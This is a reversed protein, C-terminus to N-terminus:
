RGAHRQAWKALSKRDLSRWKGQWGERSQAARARLAAVLQGAVFAVEVVAGDAAGAPGRSALEAVLDRLWHEQVVSDHLEGLADQLRAAATATLLAARRGSTRRAVPAAAEAVYRLRKAQIRLRHLAEDSPLHGLRREARRASRWQAAGLQAIAAAAPVELAEWLEAPPAEGAPEAGVPTALEGAHGAEAPVRAALGPQGQPGHRPRGAGTALLELTGLLDLYRQTCMAELLVQHAVTRDSRAADLVVAAAAQDAPALESCRSELAALRVDADRAAGLAAGLWRLEARLGRLWQAAGDGLGEQGTEGAGATAVQGTTAVQGATAVQGTAPPRPSGCAAPSTAVVRLRRVAWLLSRFRRTAVRAKHVHEPDPDGLRLPPDHEVLEDLCARAEVQLVDAMTAKGGRLGAKGVKPGPLEHGQPLGASALVTALKSEEKSPKAGSAVLALVVADLVSASAGEAAEVEVERWALATATGGGAREVLVTGEVSDEDIEAALRGDVVVQTRLRRTVLHAVPRLDRGLAVATLFKAVEPPLPPPWGEPPSGTGGEQGAPERRAGGDTAQPLDTGTGQAGADHAPWSVERRALVIGAATSPLKVTWVSSVEDGPRRPALGHLQALEASSSRAPLPSSTPAGPEGAALPRETRYRLTVRRKALRLDSTDYYVTGLELPPLALTDAGPLAAAIDPLSWEPPVVLKQERELQSGPVESHM